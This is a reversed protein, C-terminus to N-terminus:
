ESPLRIFFSTGKGPESHYSITGRHAQVIQRVITLGIGTGHPKTTFFPEFIDVDPSIGIGTDTIELVVGDGSSLAKVTLQGGGPMADVANNALNLIVQRM